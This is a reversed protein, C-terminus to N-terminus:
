ALKVARRGSSIDIYALHRSGMSSLQLMTEEAQYLPLCAEYRGQWALTM